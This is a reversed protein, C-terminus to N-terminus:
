AFAISFMTSISRAALPTWWTVLCSRTVSRRECWQVSEKVVDRDGVFLEKGSVYFHCSHRIKERDVEGNGIACSCRRVTM